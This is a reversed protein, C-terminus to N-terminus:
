GKTGPAGPIIQFPQETPIGEVPTAEVPASDLGLLGRLFRLVKDWFSEPQAVEPGIAPGGEGGPFEPIPEAELVELTLTQQITQAENFDDIYDVSVVIELPGPQFPIAQSDITFPLGTDLYGIPLENNLMEADNSEVRVRSLIAAKRDLNLVQIPLSAPQGVFLTDPNQYFGIELVPPAYVLLTITQDDTYMRGTTDSYILSIRLPYAGPATTSNVILAHISTLQTGPALDGLYAVNSQGLPAFHELGGTGSVGGTEAGPTGSAGTSVTGGGIIETVSRALSGGVNAVRIALNFISGPKLPEVDVNYGDILLIPRPALTPTVTPRASSSSTSKKTVPFSLNFTESYNAGYDDTYSAVIQLTGFAKLALEGTAILDQGYGTDADPAIVGGAIVGGSGSPLFDGPVITFVINRAKAGGQNAVRFTLTFNNGPTVAGSASYSTLTLVPRQFLTPSPEPTQLLTAANSAGLAFASFLAVLLLALALRFPLRDRM